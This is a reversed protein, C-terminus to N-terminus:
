ACARDGTGRGGSSVQRTAEVCPGWRPACSWPSCGPQGEGVGALIHDRGERLAQRGPGERGRGDRRIAM